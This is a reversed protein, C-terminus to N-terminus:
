AVNARFSLLKDTPQRELEWWEVIRTGDLLSRSQLQHRHKEPEHLLDIKQLDNHEDALHSKLKPILIDAHSTRKNRILKNKINKPSEMVQQSKLIQAGQAKNAIWLPDQVVRIVPGQEFSHSAFLEKTSVGTTPRAHKEFM